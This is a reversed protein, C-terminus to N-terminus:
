NMEVALYHMAQRLPNEGPDATLRILNPESRLWTRQRKAYQRTEVVTDAIAQELEKRDEVVDWMARYGIARFGPDDSRYGEERLREIELAWGNQVMERVRSEIRENLNYSTIELAFKTRRFPPLEFKIASKSGKAREIARIVRLPNARDVRQFAGQDLLELEQVLFDLGSRELQANLEARLEPDPTGLMDTFEEFLARTNLGTGGVVVVSQGNAWCDACVEHALKVFEGVAFGETPNKIDLLKYRDKREPKATGIDLGRYVQFSDANVLQAHFHDALEEALGTKGSATPGMVGILRPAVPDPKM